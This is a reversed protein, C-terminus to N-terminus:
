YNRLAAPHESSRRAAISLSEVSCFSSSFAVQRHPGAEAVLHPRQLHHLCAFIHVLHYQALSQTRERPPAVSFRSTALIDRSPDLAMGLGLGPVYGALNMRLDFDLGFGAAIHVCALSRM